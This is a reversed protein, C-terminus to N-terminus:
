GARVTHLMSTMEPIAPHRILCAFGLYSVVAMTAAAVFAWPQQSLWLMTLWGAIVSVVCCAATPLQDLIQSALNYKMLREAYWTNIFIAIVSAALLAWALSLPGFPAAAVVLAISVVKKAITLRFYLNAHGLANIASLNLVHLPWISSGLALVALIPAVPEWEPGYLLAVLKEAALAIGIMIPAFVFMALRLARQLAERLRSIDDAIGSFVPLGVRNLLTTIFSTPAQESNQALTYYGLTRSDFFRGILLLQLRLFVVNLLASALLYGGFSFLQRFAAIRFRGRPRWGTYLWLQLSRLTAAIPPMWVLSWVGYGRWALAIAFLGAVASSGTEARARTRFDLRRALLADPVIALAGLPVVLLAARMLDVLQPQGYFGAIAPATSWLLVAMVASVVAGFLFVSTEEDENSEGRQILAASLGSEALLSAASTFVLIMAALGFDAPALIRALVLMVIFQLGHRM